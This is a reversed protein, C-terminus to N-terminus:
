QAFLLGDGVPFLTWQRNSQQLRSWFERVANDSPLMNNEDLIRGHWLTNDFVFSNQYKKLLLLLIEPYLIKDCDVFIFDFDNLSNINAHLFEMVMDQRLEVERQGQDIKQLNERAQQLLLPNRDITVVRVQDLASLMWLLSYGPGCGLELIRAPRISRAIWSLVSGTAPSVIPVKEALAQQEIEAMCAFPRAVRANIFDEM